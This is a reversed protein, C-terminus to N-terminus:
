SFLVLNNQLLSCFLLLSEVFSKTSICSTLPFVFPTILYFINQVAGLPLFIHWSYLSWAIIGPIDPSFNTSPSIAEFPVIFLRNKRWFCISKLKGKKRVDMCEYERKNSFINMQQVIFFCRTFVSNFTSGSCLVINSFTMEPSTRNNASRTTNIYMKSSSNELFLVRCVYFLFTAQLCTWFHIRITKKDQDEM